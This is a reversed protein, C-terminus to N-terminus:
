YWKWHQVQFSVLFFMRFCSSWLFRHRPQLKLFSKTNTQSGSLQVLLQGGWIKKVSLCGVNVLKNQKKTAVCWPFTPNTTSHSALLVFFMYSTLFSLINLQKMITKMEKPVKHLDFNHVPKQLIKQIIQILFARARSCKNNSLGCFLHLWAIFM